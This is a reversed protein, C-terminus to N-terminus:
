ARGFRRELESQTLAIAVPRGHPCHRIEDNAYVQRLLETLEEISNEDHAKIAARCAMSHLLNECAESTVERRQELLKQLTDLFIGASDYEALVLSVERLLLTHPGFDEFAFGTERLTEEHDFAAQREETSVTVVVPKLLIQREGTSVSRKLREFLIREHAAHKDLLFFTDGSEFLVYTRFLEGIVRAPLEPLTAPEAEEEATELAPAEAEEEDDPEPIFTIKPKEPSTLSAPSIYQYELREPISDRAEGSVPEETSVPEQARYPSQPSRLVSAFPAKPESVKRMPSPGAVPERSAASPAALVTQETEESQFGGLLNPVTTPRVELAAKKLIDDKSLAAKVAFYVADYVSRDNLFRVETKAPHVNVDVAEFSLKVNLVCFPYRGSMISNKYGEELAAYCTKSRIYRGNVFFHQMSRNQRSHETASAYGKVSIGGVGYDVPIMAESFEGGFVAHIASLLEGDGPTHLRTKRECICKFSVEPHSLALKEVVAVAANGETVDKRLFNLRAPVNYFLDRVVITTGKPCGADDLTAPEGGELRLVAGFEQGAPRSTMELRSVAAVSALAEGRFGLTSISNLDDSLRIKSTAHRLFATPMEERAIGCGNDTVRLFAVGGGKLEVTVATAGADISNEVLEKVISAPREIVEGAAILEAINKPLVQINPM